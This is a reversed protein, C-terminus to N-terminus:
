EFREDERMPHLDGWGVRLHGFRWECLKCVDVYDCGLLFGFLVGSHLRKKPDM